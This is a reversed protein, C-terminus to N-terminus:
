YTLYALIQGPIKNDNIKSIWLKGTSFNLRLIWVTITM